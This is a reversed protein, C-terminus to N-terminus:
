TVAQQPTLRAGARIAAEKAATIAPARIDLVRQTLAPGAQQPTGAAFPPQPNYELVLQILRAYDDGRIERALELGFDIGATVGGGTRRNRDRVVRETKVNAGMLALLDRVYWHSTANYERLLGAAGLLLSGTCVSTVYRARAGRTALFNLVDDDDMLAVTGELGGPVFLVDLDMPCEGLTMTPTILYGVDTPVPVRDKAVLHVDARLLNFVTHPGLLDLLVMGPYVLAAIQPPAGTTQAFSAGRRTVTAVMEVGHPHVFEDRKKRYAGRRPLRQSAAPGTALLQVGAVALYPLGM